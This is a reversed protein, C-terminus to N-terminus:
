QTTIERIVEVPIYYIESNRTIPPTKRIAATEGNDIIAYEWKPRSHDMEVSDFDRILHWEIETDEM